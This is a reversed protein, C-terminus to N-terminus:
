LWARGLNVFHTPKGKILEPMTTAVNSALIISQVRDHAAYRELQRYIELTGGSIKVELAIGDVLFDVVDAASLRCEREFVIGALTLETEIGDQAQRETNLRFRRSRLFKALGDATMTM